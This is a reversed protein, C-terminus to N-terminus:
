SEENHVVILIDHRPLAPLLYLYTFCTLILGEETTIILTHKEPICLLFTFFFCRTISLNIDAGMQM